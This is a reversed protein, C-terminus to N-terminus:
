SAKADGSRDDGGRAFPPAAVQTSAVRGTDRRVRRRLRALRRASARVELEPFERLPGDLRRQEVQHALELRRAGLRRREVSVGRAPIASLPRGELM